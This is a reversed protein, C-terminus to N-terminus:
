EILNNKAVINDLRKDINDLRKITEKKFHDQRQMFKFVQDNFARQEKVFSNLNNSLTDVKDSLKNFKSSLDNVKDSLNNVKGSLENFQEVTVYEMDEGEIRPHIHMVGDRINYWHEKTLKLFDKFIKLMKDNPYYKRERKNKKM